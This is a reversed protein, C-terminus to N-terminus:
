GFTQLTSSTPSMSPLAYMAMCSMSPSGSERAMTPSVSGSFTRTIFVTASATSAAWRRPMM